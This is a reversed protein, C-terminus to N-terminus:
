AAIEMLTLSYGNTNQEIGTGNWGSKGVVIAPAAGSGYFHVARLKYTVASTTSPSDVLVGTITYTGNSNTNAPVNDTGFAQFTARNNGSVNSGLAITTSDRYAVFGWEQGSTGEQAVNGNYLFLIKSTTFSPTISLSIIDFDATSNLITNSFTTQLQLVKGRNPLGTTTQIDNVKILSM